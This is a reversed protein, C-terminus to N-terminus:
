KASSALHSITNQNSESYGDPIRFLSASLNEQGAKLLIEEMSYDKGTVVMKVLAGGCGANSLASQMDAQSSQMSLRKSYLEYGPVSTSTWIDTTSPSSYRSHSVSVLRAHVCSYGGVNEMGIKTVQYTDSSKLMRATDIVNLSYSRSEPYLSLSYKRANVRGITIIQNLHVGPIPIRMEMRGEGGETFYLQSTDRVPKSQGNGTTIMAYVYHIGAGDSATKYSSIAAVSDAKSVSTRGTMIGLAKMTLDASSTDNPNDAAAKAFAGLVSKTAEDDSATTSSAPTSSATTSIATNSAVTTSSGTNNSTSSKSNPNTSNDVKDLASNTTQSAKSNARSEATQKVTNVLGKLFQAQLKSCSLILFALFVAPFIIQKKM